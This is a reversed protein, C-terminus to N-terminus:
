LLTPMIMPQVHPPPDQQDDAGDDGAVAAVTLLLRRPSRGRSVIELLGGQDASGGACWFRLKAPPGCLSPGLLPELRPVVPGREFGGYRPQKEALRDGLVCAEDLDKCCHVAISCARAATRPRLRVPGLPVFAGGSRLSVPGFPFFAGRSGSTCIGIRTPCRIHSVLPRGLAFLWTLVNEEVM